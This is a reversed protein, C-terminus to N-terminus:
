TAWSHAEFIIKSLSFINRM